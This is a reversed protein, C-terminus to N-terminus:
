DSNRDASVVGLDLTFTSGQGVVSAVSVSGGHVGAVHRVISLGLGTGGTDRSRAADVRHFRHFILEQDARPIGVGTDEVEVFARGVREFCRLEVRGGAPTYRIANRLLNGVALGVDAEVGSIRIEEVEESLGVGAQTAEHRVADIEVRVASSLDMPELQAPISELRSLDLLDTVIRGLREAQEEMRKAFYRAKEDDKGIALELAGAGAQISAIPTKLEHSADTVFSRRMAQVRDLETVDTIVAGLHGDELPSVVWQYSRGRTGMVITDSSVEGTAGVEEVLELAEPNKVRPVPGPAVLDAVIGASAAVRGDSALILLGMGAAEISRRLDEAPREFALREASVRKRVAEAVSGTADPDAPDEDEIIGIVEDRAQRVSRSHLVAAAGVVLVVTGIASPPAGTVILYLCGAAGVVLLWM